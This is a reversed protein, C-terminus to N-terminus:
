SHIASVTREAGPRSGRIARKIRIKVMLALVVAPISRWRMLRNGQGIQKYLMCNDSAFPEAGFSPGWFSTAGFLCQGLVVHGWCSGYARRHGRGTIRPMSRAGRARGALPHAREEEIAGAAQELL